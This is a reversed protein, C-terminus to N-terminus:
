SEEGRAGFTVNQVSSPLLTQIEHRSKYNVLTDEYRHQLGKLPVANMIRMIWLAGVTLVCVKFYEWPTCQLLEWPRRRLVHGAFQLWLRQASKLLIRNNRGFSGRVKWPPTGGFHLCGSAIRGGSAFALAGWEDPLLSIHNECVVNLADQELCLCDPHRQLFELCKRPVEHQRFWDLNMLVFGACVHAEDHWPLNRERHWTRQNEGFADLHGMLACDGTWIGKLKLPDDTFLTDGDAYVCWEAEPLLNPIDLRAYIGRSGNTWGRFAAFRSLDVTRRHLEFEEGFMRRLDRAFKEWVPDEVGCDLVYLAIESRDSAWALASAAAVFTPMLYGMDTAYVIRLM